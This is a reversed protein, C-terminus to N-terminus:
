RLWAPNTERCIDNLLTVGRARCVCSTVFDDGGNNMTMMASTPAVRALESIDAACFLMHSM